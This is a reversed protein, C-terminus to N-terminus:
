ERNSTVKQLSEEADKAVKAGVETKLVSILGKLQAESLGTNYGINFHAELQSQVGDMNALAAITALERSQYDLVDRGFIDGFLHGKLFQDIVPAFSYVGGSVPAGVLGTQIDTGLEVSSKNEPLPSAEMGVVDRIGKAEREAVVEMLTNLGNLSRPFGAYAYMQVLVEKIENITMGSDLGDNLANKLEELDGKATFAAISVISQQRDSLAQIETEEKQKKSKAEKTGYQKDTVKEMWEANKGDLVGTLAMHTMAKTATAGHWHKVGPPFWVVDGERVEEIPGGWVQVYGTGETIVLRQGTPHTHWATRAGPSFTVYAGSYPQSENESFLTEVRVNGTFYESSGKSSTQSSSRTITMSNENSDAAISKSILPTASILLALSLLVITFTKKIRNMM